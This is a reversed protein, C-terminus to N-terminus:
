LIAMPIYFVTYSIVCGFFKCVHGMSMFLPPPNGTPPPPAPHIPALPPFNPCSHYCLWYFIILFYFLIFNLFERLFNTPKDELFFKTETTYLHLCYCRNRFAQLGPTLLHKRQLNLYYIGINQNQSGYVTEAVCSQQQLKFAAVALM